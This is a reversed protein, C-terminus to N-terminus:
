KLNESLELAAVCKEWQPLFGGYTEAFEKTCFTTIEKLAQQMQYAARFLAAAKLAEDVSEFDSEDSGWVCGVYGVSSFLEVKNASEHLAIKVNKM